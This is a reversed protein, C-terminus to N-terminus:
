RNWSALSTGRRYADAGPCPDRAPGSAVPGAPPSHAPQLSTRPAPNRASPMVRWAPGESVNKGPRFLGGGEVNPPSDSWVSDSSPQPIVKSGAIAELWPIRPNPPLVVFLDAEGPAWASKWDICALYRSADAEGPGIPRGAENAYMCQVSVWCPQRRNQMLLPREVRDRRWFAKHREILEGPTPNRHRM